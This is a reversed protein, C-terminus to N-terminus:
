NGFHFFGQFNVLSEPVHSQFGSYLPDFTEQLQSKMGAAGAGFQGSRVALSGAQGDNPRASLQFKFVV